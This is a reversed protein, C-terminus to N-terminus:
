CRWRFWMILTVCSREDESMALPMRIQASMPFSFDRPMVGVVDFSRGGLTVTKGVIQPDSSYRREWLGYSLITEQEAAQKPKM